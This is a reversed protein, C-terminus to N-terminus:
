KNEESFDKQVKEYAEPTGIDFCRGDFIYAYVDKKNHLWQLFFGPADPKNGEKLYLDFLPVTEKKYIYTAYVGINSPPEAPKEILKMIKKDENLIAVAFRRLDEISEVEEACVCDKDIEKYYNYFDILKYTFFTDSAIILVDDDINKEDIVFKIDGIAGKKDEDSLTGDDLVTISPDKREEAWQFFNEAYKHNSVLYIEDIAKITNIEDVIYDLIPKGNIPLLAKPMNLTLPYLRTAYGAALIIAKM